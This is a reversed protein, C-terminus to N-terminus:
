EETVNDILGNVIDGIAKNEGKQEENKDV